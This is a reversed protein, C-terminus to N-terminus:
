RKGIIVENLLLSFHFDFIQFYVNVIHCPLVNVILFDLNLTINCSLWFSTGLNIHVKGNKIQTDLQLIKLFIFILQDEDSIFDSSPEVVLREDKLSTNYLKNINLSFHMVRTKYNKEAIIPVNM